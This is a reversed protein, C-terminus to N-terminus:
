SWKRFKTRCHRPFLRFPGFREAGWHLGDVRGTEYPVCPKASGRRRRKRILGMDRATEELSMAKRGDLGFRRKLIEREVEELGSLLEEM